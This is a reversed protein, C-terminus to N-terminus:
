VYTVGPLQLGYMLNRYSQQARAIAEIGSQTVEFFRKARGGREPSPDGLRSTLVRKAELRDLTAYLAGSSPNRGTHKQIESLITVGYADKGLRLIALVVIQELEGLSPVAM